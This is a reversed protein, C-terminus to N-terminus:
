KWSNICDMCIGDIVDVSNVINNCVTCQESDIVCKNCILYGEFYIMDPSTEGCFDCYDGDDYWRYNYPKNYSAQVDYPMPVGKFEQFFAAFKSVQKELLTLNAYHNKTHENYYCTGFNFGICGLHDLFAIDSFSGLAPSFGHKVLHDRSESNDYQYMVVDNGRRDFSFMWNYQKTTEFHLATSRGIEEGETLLIDYNLGLSPLYDCILYVGLRDDLSGNLVIKDGGQATHAKFQHNDAVHDLHAIALIKNDAKIRKILLGDPTNVSEGFSIFSKIPMRCYQKLKKINM